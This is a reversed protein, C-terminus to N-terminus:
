RADSSKGLKRRKMVVWAFAQMKGLLCAFMGWLMAVSNHWVFDPQVDGCLVVVHM